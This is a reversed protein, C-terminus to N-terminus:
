AKSRLRGRLLPKIDRAGPMAARVDDLTKLPGHMLPQGLENLQETDVLFWGVDGKQVGFRGDGSRYEGARERVLDNPKPEATDAKKRPMPRNEVM